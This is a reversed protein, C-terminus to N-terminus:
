EIYSTNYIMLTYFHIARQIINDANGFAGMLDNNVVSHVFSGGDPGVKWKTLLISTGINVVHQIEETILDMLRCRERHEMLCKRVAIKIRERQIFNDPM